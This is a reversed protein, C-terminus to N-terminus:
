QCVGCLTYKFWLVEIFQGGIVNFHHAGKFFGESMGTVSSQQDNCNSLITLMSNMMAVIVIVQYSSAIMSM